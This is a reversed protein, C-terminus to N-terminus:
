SLLARMANTDLRVKYPDRYEANTDPHTWQELSKTREVSELKRRQEDEDVAPERLKLLLDPDPLEEPSLGLDISLVKYEREFILGYV